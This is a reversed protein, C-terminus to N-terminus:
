TEVTQSPVQVDTHVPYHNLYYKKRPTLGGPKWVRRLTGGGVNSELRMEVGSSQDHQRRQAGNRAKGCATGEAQFM